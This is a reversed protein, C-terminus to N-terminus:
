DQVVTSGLWIGSRTSGDPATAQGPGDPLGRVFRGAHSTGSGSWTMVGFGDPLAASVAGAYRNGNDFALEGVGEVRGRDITGAYVMGTAFRYVGTGDPANASLRGEYRDGNAYTFVGSGAMRGRQWEGAYIQGDPFRYVGVGDKVDDPTTEGEYVGGDDMRQVRGGSRNRASTAAARAAAEVRLAQEAERRGSDAADRARAAAAQAQRAASRAADAAGATDPTPPEAIMAVGQTTSASGSATPATDTSGAAPAGPANWISTLYGASLYGEQGSRDRVRVWNGGPVAETVTVLTGADLARLGRAGLAPVAFLTGPRNLAYVGAPLPPEQPPPPAAAHEPELNAAGIFGSGTGFAVRYWGGVRGTVTLPTGATVIGLVAGDEGPRSRVNADRAARLTGTAPQVAIEEPPAPVPALALSRGLTDRWWPVQRGGTRRTVADRVSTLTATLDRGAPGSAAGALADALVSAFPGPGSGPAPPPASGPRHSTVVVGRALGPPTDPVPRLAQGAPGAVAALRDAFPNPLVPDFMVVANGTGGVTAIVTDLAVAEFVVDFESALRADVPVVFGGDATGLALGSYYLVGVDVDPLRERFRTLAALLGARGLDDAVTVDYGAASLARAVVAGNAAASPITGGNEYRANAVVLAVRREAATAPLTAVVLLGALALGVIRAM